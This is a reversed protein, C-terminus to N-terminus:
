PEVKRPLCAQHGQRGQTRLLFLRRAWLEDGNKDANGSADVTYGQKLWDLLAPDENDLFRELSALEEESLSELVQETLPSLLLDLELLGRKARWLIRRVRIGNANERSKEKARLPASGHKKTLIDVNQASIYFFSM